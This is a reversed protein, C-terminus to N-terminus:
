EPAAPIGWGVGVSFQYLNDDFRSAHLSVSWPEQFYWRAGAGLVLGRQKIKDEAGLGLDVNLDARYYGARAFLEM